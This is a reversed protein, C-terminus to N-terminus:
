GSTERAADERSGAGCSLCSFGTPPMGDCTECASGALLADMSRGYLRALIIASSLGADSGAEIRMITSASLGCKGAVERLTWQRAERERHLRRGFTAPVAQQRATM